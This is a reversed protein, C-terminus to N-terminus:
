KIISPMNSSCDSVSWSRELHRSQIVKLNPQKESLPYTIIHHLMNVMVMVRVNYWIVPRATKLTRPWRDEVDPTGKDEISEEPMPSAKTVYLIVMVVVMVDDNDGGYGNGNGNGKMDIQRWRM